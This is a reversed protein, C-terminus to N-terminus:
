CVKPLNIFFISEQIVEFMSATFIMIEYYESLINLFEKAGPRINIYFKISRGNFM